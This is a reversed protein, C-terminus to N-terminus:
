RKQVLALAQQQHSYLTLPQPNGESKGTQFIDACSPHLLDAAVLSSVTAAKKYNPNIQILPDPWYRGKEYESDVKKKIDDASITSFSRSFQSYDAIVTDRFTFVDKM